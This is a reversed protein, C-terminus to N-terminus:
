KTLGNKFSKPDLKSLPILCAIDKYKGHTSQIIFALVTKSLTGNDTVGVFSGNNYEVRQATYVEDIILTVVKGEDSLDMTRKGLYDFDLRGTEGRDEIFDLWRTRTRGVPRKWSVEAYLTQKPLWGQTMRNVHGFWKLQSREFWLLLSEIDLSECIATNCHKDLM